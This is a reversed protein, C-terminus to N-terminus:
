LIATAASPMWGRAVVWVMVEPEFAPKFACIMSIASCTVACLFAAACALMVRFM